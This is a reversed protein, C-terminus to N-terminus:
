REIQLDKKIDRHQIVARPDSQQLRSHVEEAVAVSRHMGGTCGIAIVLQYKGETRYHPMLFRLMDMLKNVFENTQPFSFVYDRVSKEAGNHTKLDPIYFPNPLFRVDFVLDADLPIGNKFGFSVVIPLIENRRTNDSFMGWLLESLQRTSLATTDIIHTAREKLEALLNREKAVGEGINMGDMPHSRRTEKYRRILVDDSTEMFLIDVETDGNESLTDIVKYISDFFVGARTDVVIAAKTVHEEENCMNIFTDIMQPPLNDVCFYNMDELQRLALTRGAGSLGTVIVLRM